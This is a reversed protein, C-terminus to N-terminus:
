VFHSYVIVVHMLLDFAFESNFWMAHCDISKTQFSVQVLSTNGNYQGLLSM